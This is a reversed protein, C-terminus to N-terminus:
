RSEAIAKLHRLWVTHSRELLERAAAPDAGIAPGQLCVAAAVRVGTPTDAFTWDQVGRVEETVSCWRIRHAPEVADVTSSIMSGHTSWRFPVGPALPQEAVAFAIDPQWRAWANVYIHINWVFQRSANIDTAVGAVASPTRALEV